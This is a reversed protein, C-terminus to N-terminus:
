LRALWGKLYNDYLSQAKDAATAGEIIAASRKRDIVELGLLSCNQQAHFTFGATSLDATNIVEVPNDAIAKIAKLTPVRLNASPANGVSLVCPPTITQKIVGDDSLNTVSVRNSAAPELTLVQSICSWGLM